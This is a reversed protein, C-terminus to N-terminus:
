PAETPVASEGQASAAALKLTEPVDIKWVGDVKKMVFSLPPTGNGGEMLVANPTSTAPAITMTTIDPVDPATMLIKDGDWKWAVKVKEADAPPTATALGLEDKPDYVLAKLGPIDVAGQAVNWKAVTEMMAKKDQASVTPTSSKACAGLALLAVFALMAIAIALRATPRQNSNQESM